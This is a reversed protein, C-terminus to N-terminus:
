LASESSFIAQYTANNRAVIVVPRFEVNENPFTFDIYAILNNTATTDLAITSCASFANVGDSPNWESATITLSPADIMTEPFRFIVRGTAGTKMQGDGLVSYATGTVVVVISQCIKLEERENKIENITSVTGKELKPLSLTGTDFEIDVSTGGTLTGTIGTDGFSGAGIKGQATGTWSLIHTGSKFNVGRVTQILSGASITLTTINEVTAFTYTCGSSGAKFRDHGYVGAGLVVSGSVERQNVLFNSNDLLNPNVKTIDRVPLMDNSENLFTYYLSDQPLLIGDSGSIKITVSYASTENMCVWQKNVATPFIINIAGIPTGSFELISNGYQTSTLTVDGTLGTLSINLLGGITALSSDIDPVLTDQIYDQLYISAEDFKAQVLTYNGVSAGYDDVNGEVLKSSPIDTLPTIAM